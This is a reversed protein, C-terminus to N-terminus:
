FQISVITTATGILLPSPQLLIRDAFHAPISKEGILKRSDRVESQVIGRVTGVLRQSLVGVTGARILRCKGSGRARLLPAM